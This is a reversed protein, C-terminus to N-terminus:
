NTSIVKKQAKVIIDFRQRKLFARYAVFLDWLGSSKEIGNSFIGVFLCSIHERM